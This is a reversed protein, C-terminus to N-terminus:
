MPEDCSGGFVYLKGRLAACGHLKRPTNLPPLNHWVDLVPDYVETAPSCMVGDIWGGVAYVAGNHSTVALAHRSVNMAAIRQWSKGDFM